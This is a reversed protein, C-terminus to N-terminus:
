VADEFAGPPQNSLHDRLDRAWQPVVNQTNVVACVALQLITPVADPSYQRRFLEEFRAIFDPYALLMEVLSRTAARREPHAPEIEPYPRLYVLCDISPWFGQICVRKYEIAPTIMIESNPPQLEEVHVTFGKYM